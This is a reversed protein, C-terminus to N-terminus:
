VSGKFFFKKTPVSLVQLSEIKTRQGAVKNGQPRKKPGKM